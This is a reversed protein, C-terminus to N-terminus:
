YDRKNGLSTKYKKRKIKENIVKGKYNKSGGGKWVLHVSV